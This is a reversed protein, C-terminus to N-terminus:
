KHQIDQGSFVHRFQEVLSQGVRNQDEVTRHPGFNLSETQVFGGYTTLPKPVVVFVEAVEGVDEAQRMRFFNRLDVALVQSRPRVDDFGIRKAGARHAHFFKPQRKIQRPFDIM